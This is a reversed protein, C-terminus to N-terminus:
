ISQPDQNRIDELSIASMRAKKRGLNLEKLADAAKPSDEGLNVAYFKVLKTQLELFRRSSIAGYAKAASGLSVLAAHSDSGFLASREKWVMELEEAADKYKSDKQMSHRNKGGTGYLPEMEACAVHYRLELHKEDESNCTLHEQLLRLRLLRDSPQRVLSMQLQVRFWANRTDTDEEPIDKALKKTENFASDIDVDGLRNEAAFGYSQTECKIMLTLSDLTATHIYGRRCQLSKWVERSLKLASRVFHQGQPDSTKNGRLPHSAVDLYCKVLSQQSLYDFKHELSELKGRQHLRSQIEKRERLSLKHHGLHSLSNAYAYQAELTELHMMEQDNRKLERAIRERETCAERYQGRAHTIDANVAEARLRRHRFQMNSDRNLAFDALVLKIVEHARELQQKHHGLYKAGRIRLEMMFSTLAKNSRLIEGNDSDMFWQFDQLVGLQSELIELSKEKQGLHWLSDSIDLQIDVELLQKERSPAIPDLPTGSSAGPTPLAKLSELAAKRLELAQSHDSHQAHSIAHTLHSAVKEISGNGDTVLNDQAQRLQMAPDPYGHLALADAFLVATRGSKDLALVNRIWSPKSKLTGKSGHQRNAEQDWHDSLHRLQEIHAAARKQFASFEASERVECETVPHLSAMLIFSAQWWSNQLMKGTQLRIWGRVVSSLTVNGENRARSHLVFSHNRLDELARFLHKRATSDHWYEDEPKRTLFKPRHQETEDVGQRPTEQAFQLLREFFSWVSRAYEKQPNDSFMFNRRKIPNSAWAREFIAESINHGDLCALLSLLDVSRLEETNANGRKLSEYSTELERSLSTDSTSSSIGNLPKSLLRFWDLNKVYSEITSHDDKIQACAISIGLPLCGLHKCLEQAAWVEGSSFAEGPFHKYILQLASEMSTDMALIKDTEHPWKQPIQRTTIIIRGNKTNSLCTLMDVMDGVQLGTGAGSGKDDELVLHDLVMLWPRDQKSLWEKVTKCISRAQGRDYPTVHPIKSQQLSLYEQLSCLSEFLATPSQANLWM